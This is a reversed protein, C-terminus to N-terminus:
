THMLTLTSFLKIRLSDKNSDVYAYYITKREKEGKKKGVKHEKEQEIHKFVLIIRIIHMTNYIM